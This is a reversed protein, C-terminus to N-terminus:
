RCREGQQGPLSRTLWYVDGKRFGLTAFLRAEEYAISGSATVLM